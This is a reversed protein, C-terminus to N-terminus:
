SDLGYHGGELTLEIITKSNYLDVVGIVTYTNGEYVIEDKPKLDKADEYLCMILPTRTTTISAGASTETQQLYGQSTHYLGSIQKILEKEQTLEGISNQKYRYVNVNKGHRKLAQKFAYITTAPIM